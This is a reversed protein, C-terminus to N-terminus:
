KDKIWRYTWIAYGVALTIGILKALWASIYIVQIHALLLKTVVFIGIMFVFYAAVILYSLKQTKGALIKFIFKYVIFAFLVYELGGVLYDLWSFALPKDSFWVISGVYQWFLASAVVYCIIAKIESSSVKPIKSLMKEALEEPSVGFYVSAKQGGVQADLLDLLLNYVTELMAKEQYKIAGNALINDYFADFYDRNEGILKEQIELIKQRYVEETM